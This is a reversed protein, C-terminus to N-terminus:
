KKLLYNSNLYCGNSKKIHRLILYKKEAIIEDVTKSKNITSALIAKSIEDALAALIARKLKHNKIINFKSDDTM